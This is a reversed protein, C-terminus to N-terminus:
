PALVGAATSALDTASPSAQSVTLGIKTHGNLTTIGNATPATLTKNSLTQTGTLTVLSSPFTNTVSSLDKNTLTEAGSLTVEGSAASWYPAAGSGGSVLVQGATGLSPVVVVSGDFDPLTQTRLSSTVPAALTVSGSGTSNSQIKLTTM